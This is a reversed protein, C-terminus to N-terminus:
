DLLIFWGEEENFFIRRMEQRGPLMEPPRAGQAADGVASLVVGAGLMMWAAIMGALLAAIWVGGGSQVM